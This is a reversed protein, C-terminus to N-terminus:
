APGRLLNRIAKSQERALARAEQDSDAEAWVHTAPHEPDPLVLSWGTPHIVKV